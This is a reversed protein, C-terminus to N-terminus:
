YLLMQIKHQITALGKIIEENRCFVKKEKQEFEIVWMLSSGCNFESPSNVLSLNLQEWDKQIIKTEEPSIKRSIEEPSNESTLYNIELHSDNSIFRITVKRANHPYIIEVNKPIQNEVNKSESYISFPFLTISLFILYRSM